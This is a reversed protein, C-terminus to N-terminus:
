KGTSGFGGQGRDSGSLEDATVLEVQPLESIVMQAIRDGRKVVFEEPGHNFIIVGVEGRYGADITGPSNTLSINHKLALGSRPRIQAEYNLPLEICFGAPVLFSRGIPVVADIRSRLDFAADDAHAKVPFLDGCDPLTSIKIQIKM